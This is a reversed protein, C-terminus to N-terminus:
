RIVYLVRLNVGNRQRQQQHFRSGPPQQLRHGLSYVLRMPM